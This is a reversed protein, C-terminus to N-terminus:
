DILNYKEIALQILAVKDTKGIPTLPFNELFLFYRPALSLGDPGPPFHDECWRRLSAELNQSNVEPYPIICACIEESLRKDPVGIVALQEICPNELLVVEVEAPFIKVAARKIADNIRGKFVFSDDHQIIGVDRTHYWGHEDFISYKENLSIYKLYRASRASRICLEGAKGRPLIGGQDDVIKAELNPLFTMGKGCENKYKHHIREYSIYGAETTGYCVLLELSPFSKRIGNIIDDGIMQGGTGICKLTKLDFGTRSYNLFDHLLFPLMVVHTIAEKQILDMTFDVGSSISVECPFTTFSEGSVLSIIVSDFGTSWFFPRDNLLKVGASFGLTDLISKASFVFSIM